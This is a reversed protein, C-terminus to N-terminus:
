TEIVQKEVPAYCHNYIRHWPIDKPDEAVIAKCKTCVWVTKLHVDARTTKNKLIEVEM